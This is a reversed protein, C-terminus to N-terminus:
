KLMKSTNYENINVSCISREKVTATITTTTTKMRLDIEDLHHDITIKEREIVFM